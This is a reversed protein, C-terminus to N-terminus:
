RIFEPAPVKFLNPWKKLSESIAAVRRVSEVDPLLEAGKKLADLNVNYKPRSAMLYEGLVFEHTKLTADLEVARRLEKVGSEVEGQMLLLNGLEYSVVAQNPKAKLHARYTRLLNSVEGAYVYAIELNRLHVTNEPDLGQAEALHWIGAAVQGQEILVVGTDSQFFANDPNVDLRAYSYALRSSWNPLRRCTVTACILLLTLATVLARPGTWVMAAAAFIISAGVMSFYAYHDAVDSVIQQPFAVFGLVGLVGAVGVGVAAFLIPYRFRLRYIVVLGLLSSLALCWFWASSWYSRISHIPGTSLPRLFAVAGTYVSINALVEFPRFWYPVGAVPQYSQARSQFILLAVFAIAGVGCWPALTRRAQVWNCSPRCWHLALVVLPLALMQPNSLLALIFFALCALYGRLAPREIDNLAFRVAALGAACAILEKIGYVWAVSEAQIPHVAFFVSGLFAPVTNVAGFLFLLLFYVSISNLWHLTLNVFHFVATNSAIGTLQSALNELIGWVAFSVPTSQGNLMREGTVYFDFGIIRWYIVGCALALLFVAHYSQFRPVRIIEINKHDM